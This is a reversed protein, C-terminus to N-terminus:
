RRSIAVAAEVVDALRCGREEFRDDRDATRGSRENAREYVVGDRGITDEVSAIFRDLERQVYELRAVEERARRAIEAAEISADIIRRREQPTYVSIDQISARIEDADTRRESGSVIGSAVRRNTDERLWRAVTLYLAAVPDENGSSSEQLDANGTITQLNAASGCAQSYSPPAEGNMADVADVSADSNNANGPM